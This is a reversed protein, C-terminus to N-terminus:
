STGPIDKIYLSAV